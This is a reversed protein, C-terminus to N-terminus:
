SNTLRSQSGFTEGRFATLEHDNDTMGDESHRSSHRTHSVIHTSYDPKLPTAQVSTVFDHQHRSMRQSRSIHLIVRNAFVSHFVRLPASLWQKFHPEPKAILPVAINLLLICTLLIYFVLGQQYFNKVWSQRSRFLHDKGKIMTLLLIITQSIFLLVWPVVILISSKLVKCGVTDEPVPQYELISVEKYAVYFGPTYTAAALALLLYGMTATRHYIAWTRLLIVLESVGLGAALFVLIAKYMRECYQPSSIQFNMYLAMSMDVFPSYRNMFFVVTGLTWPKLWIDSIEDQLTIAYDWLLLTVMSVLVNSSLRYDLDNPYHM